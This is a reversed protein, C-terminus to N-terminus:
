REKSMPDQPEPEELEQIPEPLEPGRREALIVVLDQIPQRFYFKTKYDDLICEGSTVFNIKIKANSFGIKTRM